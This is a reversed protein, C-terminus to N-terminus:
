GPNRSRVQTSSERCQDRERPGGYIRGRILTPSVIYQLKSTHTAFECVAACGNNAVISGEGAACAQTAHYVILKRGITWGVPIVLTKRPSPLRHAGRRGAALSYYRGVGCPRNVARRGVRDKAYVQEPRNSRGAIEPVVYERARFLRTGRKRVEAKGGARPHRPRADCRHEPIAHTVRLGAGTKTLD